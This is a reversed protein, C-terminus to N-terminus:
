DRQLCSLRPEIQGTQRDLIFVDARNNNDGVVLNSDSSSLAVYRGDASIEPGSAAVSVRETEETLRDYVFVDRTSNTDGVILNSAGSQFAVYRGDASMVSELSPGNGQTGDSAVSIRVTQGTQRDHVFVDEQGNTDGDVLNNAVSWFTVFRGDSSVTPDGLYSPGNGQTGDSAVSIRTTQGTQRDHVFIDIQGNTDDPM